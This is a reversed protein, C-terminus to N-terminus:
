AHLATSTPVFGDLLQGASVDLEPRVRREHEVASRLSPTGTELAVIGALAAVTLDHDAVLSRLASEGSPAESSGILASARSSRDEASLDDAILRLLARIPQQRRRALIAELYEGANARAYADGSRCALYVRDIAERPHAIKLLRFARELSQRLKDGLLALLLRGAASHGSERGDLSECDLAVRLGLVSFHDALDIFCLREVRDCDVVLKGRDVLLGLARISKYRVLGDREAEINELLCDAARKTGFRALTKPIHIRLNRARTPDSLADTVADFGAEGMAVLAGRVAERGARVALLAILSAILREDGQRAAARAFLETREASAGPFDALALLLPTLRRDPQADAIAALLGLRGADGSDGLERLLTAIRPRALVDGSSERLVLHLAAYGHVRPGADNALETPDLEDHMALARAASMRVRESPHGLMRRALRIWDTRASAGFMELAAVLVMEDPHLLVLAPVFGERGRRSLANMAGVVELPDESALHQVLLQASELDIPDPNDRSDLSGSAMARRLLNLYPRRITVATILWAFALAAVLLALPRAALAQTGGMALLAAGTVTQSTRMLAGDILPKVRERAARPVPLYVLEGTIRHISYRLSGDVGKLLLVVVLAGGSILAATAGVFLFLPTIVLAGAIGVARVLASGVFLQVFLSLVNLALYYRAVFPGIQARPLARTVGSKFLYDVTLLTATSLFVILSVRILFPNDRFARLSETAALRSAGRARTPRDTAGTGAVSAGAAAFIGASVLLLAKAPVVFIMVAATGSGVVGGVVGAAAILGFLRRGQALTLATGVLTWFQPVAISAIVGSLIYIAVASTRSTPIAYMVFVAIAALGLTVALARRPGFRAGARGALAATPLTFVAIAVYVLGLARAGPGTLLLADRATELITHATIILLLLAAFGLLAGRGEGARVDFIRAARVRLTKRLQALNM